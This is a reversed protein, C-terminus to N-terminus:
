FSTNKIHFLTSMDTIYLDINQYEKYVSCNRTNINFGDVNIIDLFKELFLTGQYHTGNPNLFSFIMRSHLRVEDSKNLVSTLINYNNLGRQKQKDQEMKFLKIKEFYDKYDEM